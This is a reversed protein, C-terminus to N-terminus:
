PLNSEAGALALLESVTAFTYGQERLADIIMKTAAVTPARSNQALPDDVDGHGDHLLVIGGPAIGELVKDAIARADELEWDLGHASTLISRMGHEALARRLGPGQLGYPPRFIKPSYGLEREIIANARQVEEYMPQTGADTMARHHYSHNGIEHGASATALFAEPFAEVNRAKVFFTARVGEDRLLDLLAQTHPPNPGDDYTLAIVRTNVAVQSVTDRYSWFVVTLCLVIALVVLWLGKRVM